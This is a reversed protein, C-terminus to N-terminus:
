KGNRAHRNLRSRWADPHDTALQRAKELRQEVLALDTTAWRRNGVIVRAMRLLANANQWQRHSIEHKGAYRRSPPVGGAAWAALQLADEYARELRRVHSNCESLKKRLQAAEHKIQTNEFELQRIRQDPTM